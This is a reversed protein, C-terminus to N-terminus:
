GNNAGRKALITLYERRGVESVSFVNYPQGEYVVRWTQDMAGVAASYRIQFGADEVGLQVGGSYFERGKSSLLRAWVIAVTAWTEVVEGMSGRTITKQQITLRRDLKGADM